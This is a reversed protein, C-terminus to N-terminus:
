RINNHNIPSVWWLGNYKKIQAFALCSVFKYIQKIKQTKVEESKFKKSNLNM